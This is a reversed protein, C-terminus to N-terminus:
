KATRIGFFLIIAPIWSFVPLIYRCSIHRYILPTTYGIYALYPKWDPLQFPASANQKALLLAWLLMGVAPVLSISLMNEFLGSRSELFIRGALYYLVLSSALIICYITRPFSPPYNDTDFVSGNQDLYPGATYFFASASIIIHIVLSKLNNRMM